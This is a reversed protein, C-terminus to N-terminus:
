RAHLARAWRRLAAVDGPSVGVVSARAVLQEGPWLDINAQDMADGLVGDCGPHGDISFTEFGLSPTSLVHACWREDSERLVDLLVPRAGFAVRVFTSDV